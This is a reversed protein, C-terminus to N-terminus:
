DEQVLILASTCSVGHILCESYCDERFAVLRPHAICSMLVHEPSEVYLAFLRRLRLHRPVAAHYRTCRRLQELVLPHDGLILRTIAHRHDPVTVVLSGRHKQRQMRRMLIM